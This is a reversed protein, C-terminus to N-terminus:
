STKKQFGQYGDDDNVPVAQQMQRITQVTKRGLGKAIEFNHQYVVAGFVTGNGEHLLTVGPNSYDWERFVDAEGGTVVAPQLM